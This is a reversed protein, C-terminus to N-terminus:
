NLGEQKKFKGSTNLIYEYFELETATIIFEYSPRYQMKYKDLLVGTLGTVRKLLTSNFKYNIYKDEEEEILRKQFVLNMKNRRFHFINILENVDLGPPSGPTYTSRLGPKEYNFMKSYTLRNEASDQRYNKTFIKVEKLLKYKEFVHVLLSIDFDNYNNISKVPFKQTPKNAYYFSISDKENTNIHYAGLSDTVAIGGGTSKVIVGPVAYLKTSDYVTGSIIIQGSVFNALLLFHLFFFATKLRLLIKSM